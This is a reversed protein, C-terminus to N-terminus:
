QINRQIVDLIIDNSVKVNGIQRMGSVRDKERKVLKAQRFPDVKKSGKTKTTDLRRYNAKKSCFSKPLLKAHPDRTKIGAVKVPFDQMPLSSALDNVLRRGLNDLNEDAVILSLEPIVVEHLTIMLCSIDTRRWDLNEVEYSAFGSTVRKIETHFNTISESYALKM